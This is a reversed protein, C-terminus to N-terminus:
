RSATRARARRRLERALKTRLQGIPMGKGSLAERRGEEIARLIDMRERADAYARFQKPSLVVAATKRGRMVFTPGRSKAVSDFQAPFDSVKATESHLM